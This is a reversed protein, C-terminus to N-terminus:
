RLREKLVKALLAGDAASGAQGKLMGMAKGFDAATFGNDTVIKEVLVAIDAESMQAPLYRELIAAEQLEKDAQDKKGGATFAESAEKRRKVESKVIAVLEEDSPERMKSIKENQIRVKLGRLTDATLPDKAKLAVKLEEEIQSLSVM